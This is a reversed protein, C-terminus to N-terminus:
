SLLEVASRLRQVEEGATKYGAADQDLKDFAQVAADLESRVTAADLDGAADVSRTLVLLRNGVVEAFGSGIVYAQPGSAGDLRLIGPGLQAVYPAHDPLVTFEGLIGPLVAESVDLEAAKAKPTLLEISITGSM